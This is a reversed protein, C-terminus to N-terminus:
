IEEEDDYEDEYDPYQEPPEGKSLIVKPKDTDEDLVKMVRCRFMWCDGFDFIYLFKQGPVLRLNDFTYQADTKRKPSYDEFNENPIEWDSWPVNDMFFSHLHADDFDTEIMIMDHLTRLKSTGPFRFHRYSKNPFTVKIVYSKKVAQETEKKTNTRKTITM